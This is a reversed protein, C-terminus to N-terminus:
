KKVLVCHAKSEETKPLRVELVGNRYVAEVKETAVPAPLAVYREFKREAYEYEEKEKKEHKHEAKLMLEDGRVEVHFEEAEFGPAEARVVFEKETEEMELNWFRETEPEFPTPWGGFLRDYLTKFEENLRAPPYAREKRWPAMLFM